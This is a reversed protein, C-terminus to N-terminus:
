LCKLEVLKAEELRTAGLSMAAYVYWSFRKDPRRDIMSWVDKAVGLGLGSKRWVPVRTYGSADQSLRESHIFKFGMFSDIKGENLAKVSAYDASTAETTALLNGKQKAGIVIYREEDDDGEAADLAVSASILKSITLGANGSGNGYTWDNVLVQTGAPTTPASEANGNPWAVATSGTHGTYATAWLSGILEDDIARELAYAANKAYNSEPDILLRVKDEVDVLDGWDYDYPAVRRRLHQTNMIPSDGHRAIVKRAATPAMQELYASDGTITDEMVCPRMRSKTQQALFKVNGSFQQVFADTVTFSM